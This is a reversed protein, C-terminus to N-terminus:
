TLYPSSSARCSGIDRASSFESRVGLWVSQKNPVCWDYTGGSGVVRIVRGSACVNMVKYNYGDTLTEACNNKSYFRWTAAEAPASVGVAVTAAIGLAALAQKLHAKM